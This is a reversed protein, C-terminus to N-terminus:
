VESEVFLFIRLGINIYVCYMLCILDLVRLRSIDRNMRKSDHNKSSLLSYRIYNYYSQIITNALVFKNKHKIIVNHKLVVCVCLPQMNKAYMAFTRRYLNVQIHKIKYYYRITHCKTVRVYSM